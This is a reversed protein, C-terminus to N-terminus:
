TPAKRLIQSGLHWIAIALLVAGTAAYQYLPLLLAEYGQADGYGQSGVNNGIYLLSAGGIAVIALTKVVRYRAGICLLVLPATLLGLVFIVWGLDNWLLGGDALIFALLGIAYALVLWGRLSLRRM